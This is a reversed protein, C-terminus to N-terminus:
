YDHEVRTAYFDPTTKLCQLACVELLRKVVADMAKGYESTKQKEFDMMDYHESYEEEDFGDADTMEAFGQYAWDGTNARLYEIEEAKCYPKGKERLVGRSENIVALCANNDSRDLGFMKQNLSLLWELEWLDSETLDEWRDVPRAKREWDDQSRRLMKTFEEESNLCLLSADVAFAYFVEDQHEAAFRRIEAICFDVISNLDCSM